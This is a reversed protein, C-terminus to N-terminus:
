DLLGLLVKLDPNPLSELAPSNRGLEKWGVGKQAKSTWPRQDGRLHRRWHSGVQEFCFFPPLLFQLSLVLVFNPTSLFQVCHRNHTHLSSKACVSTPRYSFGTSSGAGQRGGWYQRQGGLTGVSVSFWCVAVGPRCSAACGRQRLVPRPLVVARHPLLLCFSGCTQLQCFLQWCTLFMDFCTACFLDPPTWTHVHVVCMVHMWGDSVDMWHQDVGWGCGCGTCTVLCTSVFLMCDGITM